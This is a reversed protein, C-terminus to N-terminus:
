KVVKIEYGLLESIQAITLEKIPSSSNLKLFEKESYEKGEFWWEKYGTTYEAAPGDSRHLRDNQYWCKTEDAYEAAPGDTRHRLGNQYWHKRGNICEIAPGDTRHLQNNQYWSRTGNSYEIAPGNTRHLQNNQWWEIRDGFVRVIYEEM